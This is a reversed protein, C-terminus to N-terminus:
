AGDLIRLAAEMQPNTGLLILTDGPQVTAEAGPNALTVGDRVWALVTAGAARRLDLQALSRGSAFSQGTVRYTKVDLGALM